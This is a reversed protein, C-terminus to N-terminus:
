RAGHEKVRYEYRYYQQYDSEEEGLYPRLVVFKMDRQYYEREYQVDRLPDAFVFRLRRVFVV